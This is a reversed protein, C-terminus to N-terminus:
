VNNSPLIDKCPCELQSIISPVTITKFEVHRANLRSDSFLRKRYQDFDGSSARLRAAMSQSLISYRTIIFISPM